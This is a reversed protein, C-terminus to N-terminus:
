KYLSRNMDMILLEIESLLIEKLNGNFINEILNSIIAEHRFEMRCDRSPLNKIAEILTTRSESLLKRELESFNPCPMKKIEEYAQFNGYIKELRHLEEGWAAMQKNLENYENNLKCGTKLLNSYFAISGPFRYTEQLKQLRNCLDESSQIEQPIPENDTELFDELKKNLALSSIQDCLPHPYLVSAFRDRLSWLTEQTCKHFFDAACISDDKDNSYILQAIAKLIAAPDTLTQLILFQPYLTRQLNNCPYIRNLADITEYKKATRAAKVRQENEQTYLAMLADCYNARDYGQKQQALTKLFEPFFSWIEKFSTQYCEGRKEEEEAFKYIVKKLEEYYGKPKLILYIKLFEPYLRDAYERKNCIRLLSDLM